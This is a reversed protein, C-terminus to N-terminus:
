GKVRRPSPRRALDALAASAVEGAPTDRLLRQGYRFWAEAEAPSMARLVALLRRAAPDLAQLGAAPKSM